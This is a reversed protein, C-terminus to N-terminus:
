VVTKPKLNDYRNGIRLLREPNNHVLRLQIEQQLPTPRRGEHQQLKNRVHQRVQVHLPLDQHEVEVIHVVQVVHVVPQLRDRIAAVHHVGHLPKIPRQVVATVVVQVAVTVVVSVEELVVAVSGM